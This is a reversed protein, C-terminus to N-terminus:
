ENKNGDLILRNLSFKNMIHVNLNKTCIPTYEGLYHEKEILFNIKDNEISYVIDRDLTYYMKGPLHDVSKGNSFNNLIHAAISFAFDNRFISTHIQYLQTYHEWYEEIHQVLDFFIKSKETKTFYVVTAWYFQVSTDSIRKFEENTRHSCLDLSESYMALESDSTFCNSLLNNSIIYDSDILLTNEYPSLEYAYSRNYNNFNAVHSYLSGDSFRRTNVPKKSKYEIIKDFVTYEYHSLVHQIDHTVISTSIGLFQKIRKASFVAQRIYDIKENNFAFILAGNSM